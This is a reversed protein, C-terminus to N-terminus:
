GDSALRGWRGWWRGAEAQLRASRGPAFRELSQGEALLRQPQAPTGPVEFYVETGGVSRESAPVSRALLVRVIQEPLPQRASRNLHDALLWGGLALWGLVWLGALWPRARAWGLRRVAQRLAVALAALVLVSLVFPRAAVWLAQTPDSVLTATRLPQLDGLDAGASAQLAARLLLVAIVPGIAWALTRWAVPAPASM